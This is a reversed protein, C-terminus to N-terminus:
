MPIERSGTQNWKEVIGCPLPMAFHAGSATPYRSDLARSVGAVRAQDLKVQM